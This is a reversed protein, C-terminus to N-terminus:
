STARFAGPPRPLLMSTDDVAALYTGYRGNRSITLTFSLEKESPPPQGAAFHTDRATLALLSIHPPLRLLHLASVLSLTVDADRIMHPLLMYQRLLILRSVLATQADFAM